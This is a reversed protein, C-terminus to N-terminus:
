DETIDCGHLTLAHCTGALAGMASLHRYLKVHVHDSELGVGLLLNRFLVAPSFPSLHDAGGHILLVNSPLFRRSLPIPSTTAAIIDRSPIHSLLPSAAYLLHSPSRSATLKVM